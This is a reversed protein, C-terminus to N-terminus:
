AISIEVMYGSVKLTESNNAVISAYYVLQDGAQLQFSSLLPATPSGSSQFSSDRITDTVQPTTSTTVPSGNVPVAMWAHMVQTGTLGGRM